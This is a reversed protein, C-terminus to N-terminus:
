SDGAGFETGGTEVRGVCARFFVHSAASAKEGTLGASLGSFGSGLLAVTAEGGSGCTMTWGIGIGAVDAVLTAVIVLPRGDGGEDAECEGPLTVALGKGEVGLESGVSVGCGNPRGM